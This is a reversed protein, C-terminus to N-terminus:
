RSPGKCPSPVYPKTSCIFNVALCEWSCYKGPYKEKRSKGFGNTLRRKIQLAHVITILCKLMVFVPHVSQTSLIFFCLEKGLPLCVFHNSYCCSICVLSQLLFHLTYLWALPLWCSDTCNLKEGKKTQHYKGEWQTCLLNRHFHIASHLFWPIEGILM